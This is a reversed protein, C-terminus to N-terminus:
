MFISEEQRYLLMHIILVAAGVDVLCDAFNFIPFDMFLFVLYDTVSQVFLRDYLNGLAGACLLVFAQRVIEHRFKKTVLVYLLVCSCIISIASLLGTHGSLIGFAAGSNGGKLLKLGLIHPLLEIVQGSSLYTEAMVKLIRDIGVLLIIELVIM